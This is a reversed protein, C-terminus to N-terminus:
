RKFLINVYFSIKKEPFFFIMLRDDSSGTWLTTLNLITDIAVSIYIKKEDCWAFVILEM